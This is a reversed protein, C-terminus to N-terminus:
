LFSSIIFLILLHVPYAAYFFNKMGRGRKGSYLLLGLSSLGAFVPLLSIEYPLLVLCALAWVSVALAQWPLARNRLLPLLLAPLSFILALVPSLPYLYEAASWVLIAAAQAWKRGSCMYLLLVLAVGKLAYDAHPQIILLVPMLAAAHLVIQRLKPNEPLERINEAFRLLSLSLALTYFVNMRGVLLWRGGLRLGLCPLLLFGVTLLSAKCLKKYYLCLGAPILLLLAEWGLLWDVGIPSYQGATYNADNFCLSFPIQSILAFLMLRSLYKERDGSHEFGRVLLFAYIPFALRGIGRLLLYLKYGELLGASWLVHTSHDIIMCILATLKLAFSSM